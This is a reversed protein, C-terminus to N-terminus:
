RKEYLFPVSLAFIACVAGWASVKPSHLAKEECLHTNEYGCFRWNQKNAIRNLHFHEEDTFWICTVDFGDNVITTLIQEEFDVRQKVAKTPIAQHSHIKYPLLRLSNKLIKQSSM